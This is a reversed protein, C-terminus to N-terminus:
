KPKSTEALGNVSKLLNKGASKKIVVDILGADDAAELAETANIGTATVLQYVGYQDMILFNGEVPENTEADTREIGDYVVTIGIVAIAIVAIIATMTSKKDM